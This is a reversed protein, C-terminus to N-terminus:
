HVLAQEELPLTLENKTDTAPQVQNGDIVLSEENSSTVSQYLSKAKSTLQTVSSRLDGQWDVPVKIIGNIRFQMFHRYEPLPELYVPLMVSNSPYYRELQPPPSKMEDGMRLVECQMNRDYPPLEVSVIQGVAMEDLREQPVYLIAETSNDELIEVVAENLGVNEGTLQLRRTVRGSVPALLSGQGIKEKLRKIESQITEIRALMPRIQQQQDLDQKGSTEVNRKLAKVALQQKEVKSQQGIFEYYIADFKQQSLNKSKRLKRARELQKRLDSLAASDSQLQGSAQLYRANAEVGVTRRNQEEFKLKASEAELQAQTLKMEDVLEEVRHRLQLNNIEALVQGQKVVEGEKIQWNAIVGDWPASVTIVRGNIVGYSQYLFFSSWVFYGAVALCSIFITGIFFQGKNRKPLPPASRAVKPAPSPAPTRSPAPKLGADSQPLRVPPGTQRKSRFGTTKPVNEPNNQNSAKPM